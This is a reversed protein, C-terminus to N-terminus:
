TNYCTFLSQINKHIKTVLLLNKSQTINSLIKNNTLFHFCCCLKELLKNGFFFLKISCNLESSCGLDSAM